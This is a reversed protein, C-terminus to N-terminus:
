KKVGSPIPPLTPLQPMGTLYERTTSVGRYSDREKYDKRLPHGEWDDPLMIRRLDSHGSFQFGLLDYQEREHWNAAPWIGEVSPVEPNERPVRVKLKFEHRHTYSFLLYVLELEEKYDVGAISRLFDFELQESDRCFGAVEVIKAPEVRVWPQITETVTELVVPGFRDKLLRAIEDAKM